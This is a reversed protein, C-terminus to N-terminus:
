VTAASQSSQPSNYCDDDNCEMDESDVSVLENGSSSQNMDEGESTIWRRMKQSRQLFMPIVSFYLRSDFERVESSIPKIHSLVEHLILKDILMGDSKWNTRAFLDEFKGSIDGWVIRKEILDLPSVPLCLFRAIDEWRFLFM